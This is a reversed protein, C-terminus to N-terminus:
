RKEGWRTIERWSECKHCRACSAFEKEDRWKHGFLWCIIKM